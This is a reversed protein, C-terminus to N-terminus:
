HTFLLWLKKKRCVLFCRHSQSYSKIQLFLSWFSLCGEPTWTSKMCCTICEIIGKILPRVWFEKEKMWTAGELNHQEQKEWLGQLVVLREHLQPWYFEYLSGMKWSWTYFLMEGRATAVSRQSSVMLSFILKGSDKLWSTQPHWCKHHHSWWEIIVSIPKLPEWMLANWM